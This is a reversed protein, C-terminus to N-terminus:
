LAKLQLSKFRLSTTLWFTNLLKMISLQSKGAARPLFVVPIEVIRGGVKHVAWLVEEVLSPGVSVMKDWDIKALISKRFCRFGSTGDAVPIQLWFRIWWCALRTIMKRLINRDPQRGGPVLRSAIVLDAHELAPLFRPLYAPDHSFDADMEIVYDVSMKSAERFGDIGAVGRGRIGKREMLHIRRDSRAMQRVLDSTGDPSADDVVLVEVDLDQRLIENIMRRVNASENYTPLLILGKM